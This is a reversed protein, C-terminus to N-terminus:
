LSGGGSKGAVNLAARAAAVVESWLPHHLFYHDNGRENTALIADLVSKLSAIAVVEDNDLLFQGIATRDFDRDDFFFHFTQDIGSVEKRPQLWLVHRDPRALEDLYDLLEDRVWPMSLQNVASGRFIAPRGDLRGAYRLGERV